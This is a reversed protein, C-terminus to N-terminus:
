SLQYVHQNTWIEYSIVKEQNNFYRFKKGLIIPLAEEPILM